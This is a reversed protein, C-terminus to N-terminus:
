RRCGEDKVQINFSNPLYLCVHKFRLFSCYAFYHRVATFTCLGSVSFFTITTAAIHLQMVSIYSM